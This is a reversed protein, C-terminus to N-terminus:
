ANRVQELVEEALSRERRREDRDMRLKELSILVGRAPQRSRDGPKQRQYRAEYCHHTHDEGSLERGDQGRAVRALPEAEGTM